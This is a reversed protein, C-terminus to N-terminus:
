ENFQIFTATPNFTFTENEDIGDSATFMFTLTAYGDVPLEVDALQTPSWPNAYTSTEDAFALATGDSEFFRLSAGIQNFNVGNAGWNDSRTDMIKNMKVPITSNNQIKLTVKATAGPYLNSLTVNAIDWDNDGSEDEEYGVSGTVYDSLVLEEEGTFYLDLQGTNVTTNISLTDNWAAYGAGVMMLAVVMTLAILKTKNM